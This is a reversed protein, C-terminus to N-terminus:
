KHAEKGAASDKKADKDCKEGTCCCDKDKGCVKGDKDKPCACTKEAPKAKDDSARLLTTSLLGALALALLLRLSKM